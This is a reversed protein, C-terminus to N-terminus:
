PLFLFIICPVFDFGSLKKLTERPFFTDILGRSFLLPAALIKEFIFVFPLAAASNLFDKEHCIFLFHRSSLSVISFLLVVSFTKRRNLDHIM